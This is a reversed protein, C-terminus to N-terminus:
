KKDEDKGGLKLKNLLSIAENAIETHGGVRQVITETETAYVDRAYEKMKEESIRAISNGTLQKYVWMGIGAAICAFFIVGIVAMAGLLIDNLPIGFMLVNALLM